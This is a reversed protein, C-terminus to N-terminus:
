NSNVTYRSNYYGDQKSVNRIVDKITGKLDDVGYVNGFNFSYNNGGNQIYKNDRKMRDYTWDQVLSQFDREPAVIENPRLLARIYDSAGGVRSGQGGEAFGTYVSGIGKFTSAFSQAASTLLSQTSASQAQVVASTLTRGAQVQAATTDKAGGVPTLGSTLIADFKQTLTPARLVTEVRSLISKFEESFEVPLTTKSEKISASIQKFNTMVSQVLEPLKNKVDDLTFRWDGTAMKIELMADEVKELSKAMKFSADEVIYQNDKMQYELERKEDERADIVDQIAKLEEGKMSDIMNLKAEQFEKYAEAGFMIAKQEEESHRKKVIRLEDETKGLQTLRALEEAHQEKIKEQAYEAFLGRQAAIEALRKYYLEANKIENEPDFEEKMFSAQAQAKLLESRTTAAEIATQGAPEFVMQGDVNKFPLNGLPNSIYELADQFEKDFDLADKAAKFERLDDKNFQKKQKEIDKMIQDKEKNARDIDRQKLEIDRQYQKIKQQYVKTEKDFLIQSLEELQNLQGVAADGVSKAANKKISEGQLRLQELKRNLVSLQKPDNTNAIEQKLLWEQFKNAYMETNFEAQAMKFPDNTLQSKLREIDAYVELEQQKLAVKQDFEQKAIKLKEVQAKKDEDIFKESAEGYKIKLWELNNSISETSAKSKKVISDETESWIELREVELNNLSDNIQQQIEFIKDYTEREAQIRLDLRYQTFDKTPNKRQLDRIKEDIEVFKRGLEVLSDDIEDSTLSATVSNIEIDLLQMQIAADHAIQKVKQLGSAIVSAKQQELQQIKRPDNEKNIQDQINKVEQQTSLYELQLQKETESYDEQLEIRRKANEADKQYYDNEIDILKNRFDIQNKISLANIAEMKAEYIMRARENDLGGSRILDEMADNKQKEISIQAQALQSQAILAPNQSIEAQTSTLQNQATLLDIRTKSQRAYSNALIDRTIQEQEYQAEELLKKENENLKELTKGYVKTERDILQKQIAGSAPGALMAVVSGASVKGVMEYYAKNRQEQISNQIDAVKLSYKKGANALKNSDFMAESLDGRQYMYDNIRDMSDITQQEIERFMKQVQRARKESFVEDWTTAIFNLGEIILPAFAGIVPLLSSVMKSLNEPIQKVFENVQEELNLGEFRIEGLDWGKENWEQSGVQIQAQKAKLDIMNQGVSFLANSMKTINSLGNNLAGDFVTSIVPNLQSVINNIEDFKNRILNLQDTQQKYVIFEESTLLKRTKIKDTIQQQLDLEQLKLSNYIESDEIDKLQQKALDEADKKQKKIVELRQLDKDILVDFQKATDEIAKKDVLAPRNLGTFSEFAEKIGGLYRSQGISSAIDSFESLLSNQKFQLQALQSQLDIRKMLSDNYATNKQLQEIEKLLEIQGELEVIEDATAGTLKAKALDDQMSKRKQAFESDIKAMTKELSDPMLEFMLEQSKLQLAYVRENEEIAQLAMERATKKNLLLRKKNMREDIQAKRKSLETDTLLQQEAEEKLQRREEEINNLAVEHEIRMDDLKTHLTEEALLKEINYYEQTLKIKYNLSDRERKEREKLISTESNTIELKTRAIQEVKENYLDTLNRKEEDTWDGESMSKRIEELQAEQQKLTKNLHRQKIILEESSQIADRNQKTVAISNNQIGSGSSPQYSSGRSPQSYNSGSSTTKSQDKTVIKQGNTYTTELDGNPLIRQSKIQPAQNQTTTKPTPPASQTNKPKPPKNGGRSKSLEIAATGFQKQNQEIRAQRAYYGTNERHEDVSIIEPANELGKFNAEEVVEQYVFDSFQQFDKSSYEEKKRVRNIAELKKKLFEVKKKIRELDKKALTIKNQRKLMFSVFSEIASIYEPSDKGFAKEAGIMVSILAKEKEQFSLRAKSGHQFLKIQGDFHRIPASAGGEGSIMGETVPQSADGKKRINEIADPVNELDKEQQKKKAELRKARIEKMRKLQESSGTDIMQEDSFRLDPGGTKRLLEAKMQYEAITAELDIAKQREDNQAKMIDLITKNKDAKNEELDLLLKEKEYLDDVLQQVEEQSLVGEGQLKSIENLIETYKKMENNLHEQMKAKVEPDIAEEYGKKLMAIISEQTAKEKELREYQGRVLSEERKEESKKRYADEIEQQQEMQNEVARLYKKAAILQQHYIGSPDDSDLFLRAEAFAIEAKAAELQNKTMNKLSNAKQQYAAAQKKLEDSTLKLGAREKEHLKAADALTQNRKAQVVAAEKLMENYADQEKGFENLSYGVALILGSFLAVAIAVPGLVALLAGFGTAGTAAAAGAGTAAVGAATMSGSFLTTLFTGNKILELVGKFVLAGQAMGALAKTAVTAALAFSGLLGISSVIFGGVTIGLGSFIDLSSNAVTKLIRLIDTIMPAFKEGLEIMVNQIAAQLMKFEAIVGKFAIQQIQETVNDAETHFAILADVAGKNEAIENLAASMGTVAREGFITSLAALKTSNSLGKMKEAMEVLIDKLPRFRGTLSDKASIGLADLQKKAEPTINVLRILAQRLTTGGQSSLIMNKGLLSVLGATEEFSQGTSRALPAIYKFTESLTRFDTASKLASTTLVDAVHEADSAALGFGNIIGSITEAVLEISEGSAEAALVVGKISQEVQGATFGLKAMVVGAEAIETATFKSNEAIKLVTKAFQEGKQNTIETSEGLEFTVAKYRNITAEFEGFVSNIKTFFGIVGATLGTLYIMATNTVNQVDYLIKRLQQWHNNQESLIHNQNKQLENTQKITDMLSKYANEVARIDSTPDQAMHILNDSRSQITARQDPDQITRQSKIRELRVSREIAIKKQQDSEAKNQEYFRRIWDKKIWEEQQMRREQAIRADSNEMSVRTREDARFQRGAVLDPRLNREAVYGVEQEANLRRQEEQLREHLEILRLIRKARKEQRDMDAVFFKQRRKDQSIESNTQELEVENLVELMERRIQDAEDTTGFVNGRHEALVGQMGAKRYERFLNLLKEEGAELKAQYQIRDAFLKKELNQQETTRDLLDQNQKEERERARFIEDDFTTKSRAANLDMQLLEIERLIEREKEAAKIKDNFIKSAQQDNKRSQDAEQDLLDITRQHEINRRHAADVANLNEENDPDAQHALREREQELAAIKRLIELEEEAAKIKQDFTKLSQKDIDLEEKSVKQLIDLIQENYDRRKEDSSLDVKEFSIQGSSSVGSMRVDKQQGYNEVVKAQAEKAEQVLKHALKLEQNNEKLIKQERQLQAYYFTVTQTVRNWQDDLEKINGQGSMAKGMEKDLDKLQREILKTDVGADRLGSIREELAPRKRALKIRKEQADAIAKQKAKETKIAEQIEQKRIKESGQLLQKEATSMFAAVFKSAKETAVDSDEFIESYVKEMVSSLKTKLKEFEKVTGVFESKDFMKQKSMTEIQKRLLGIGLVLDEVERSAKETGGTKVNIEYDYQVLFKLFEENM